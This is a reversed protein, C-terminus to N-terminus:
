RHFHHFGRKVRVRVVDSESPNADDNGAFVAKYQGSSYAKVSARFVGFRNTEAEGLKRWRARGDKRYLIDVEQDAYGKVRKDEAILRGRLFVPKGKRVKNPYAGFEVIKTGFKTKVLEVTFTEADSVKKGSRDFAVATALWKGAPDKATFQAVFRTLDPKLDPRGHGRRGDGPRGTQRAEEEEKAQAAAGNGAPAANAVKPTFRVYKRGLPKLSVEVRAAGKSVVDFTVSTAEGRKVQVPNPEIKTLDVKLDTRRDAYAPGSILLVSAGVAAALAGATIRKM